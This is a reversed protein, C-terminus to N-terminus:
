QKAKHKLQTVCTSVCLSQQIHCVTYNIHNDSRYLHSVEGHHLILFYVNVRLTALPTPVVDNRLLLPPPHLLFLSLLLQLFDVHQWAHPITGFLYEPM